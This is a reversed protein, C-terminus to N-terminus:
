QKSMCYHLEVKTWFHWKMLLKVALWQDRDYFSVTTYVLTICIHIVRLIFLYKSFIIIVKIKNIKMLQKWCINRRQFCLQVLQLQFQFLRLHFLLTHIIVYDNDKFCIPNEFSFIGLLFYEYFSIRAPM